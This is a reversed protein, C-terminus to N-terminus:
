EGYHRQGVVAQAHPVPELHHGARILNAAMPNGMDGLDIFGVQLSVRKTM